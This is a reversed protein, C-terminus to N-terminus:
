KESPTLLSTFFDEPDKEEELHDIFRHWHYLWIQGEWEVGHYNIRPICKDNCKHKGVNVVEIGGSEHYEKKNWMLAKGLAKWFHPDVQWYLDKEKWGGEIAKDIIEKM